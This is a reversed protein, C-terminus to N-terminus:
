MKAKLPVMNLSYLFNELIALYEQPHARLHGAHISEKWKKSTVDIGQKRWATIMNEMVESNSMVDNECFFCLASVTLPMNWFIDIGRNFYDVTQRKFIYFYLLSGRKM